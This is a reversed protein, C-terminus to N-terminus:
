EIHTWPNSDDPDKMRYHTDEIGEVCALRRNTKYKIWTTNRDINVSYDNHDHHDSGFAFIPTKNNFITKLPFSRFIIKSLM